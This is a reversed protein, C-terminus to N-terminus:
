GDGGQFPSAKRGRLGRRQLAREALRTLPKLMRWAVIADAKLIRITKPSFKEM